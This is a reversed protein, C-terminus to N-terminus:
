KSLRPLLRGTENRYDRYDTGFVELMMAEERPTRLFYMPAFAAVAAWDALWNQLLLGQAFSFLWIAAYM